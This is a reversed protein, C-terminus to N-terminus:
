MVEKQRWAPALFISKSFFIKYLRTCKIYFLLSSFAFSVIYSFHLRDSSLIQCIYILFLSDDGMDVVVSTVDALASSSRAHASASGVYIFLLLLTPSSTRWRRTGIYAHLFFFIDVDDMSIYFIDLIDGHTRGLVRGDVSAFIYISMYWEALPVLDTKESKRAKKKQRAYKKKKRDPLTYIIVCAGFLRFHLHAPAAPTDTRADEKEM